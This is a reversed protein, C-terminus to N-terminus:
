SNPFEATPPTFGATYRAVGKTIRIEDLYANMALSSAIGAFYLSRTASTNVVASDNFSGELVGDKFLRWTNVSRTFAIHHWVNLTLDTYTNGSVSGGYLYIRKLYTSNYFGLQWGTIGDGGTTAIGTLVMNSGSPREAVLNIFFECTFDGSGFQFDTNNAFSISDNVGDFYMSATGFKYVGTKLVPSDNITATKPRPSSDTVVSTNNVGNLHLLLSVNNFNPDSVVPATSTLTSAFTTNSSVNLKLSKTLKLSGIAKSNNRNLASIIVLRIMGISESLAKSVATATLLISIQANSVVRAKSSSTANAIKVLSLKTNTVAKSVSKAVAISILNATSIVKASASSTTSLVKTLFTNATSSEKVISISILNIIKTVNAIVVSNTKAIGIVIGNVSIAFARATSSINKALVITSQTISNSKTNSAINRAVSPVNNVISKVTSISNLLVAKVVQGTSVGVGVAVGLIGASKIQIEAIIKSFTVSTSNILKAIQTSGSSTSNTKNLSYINKAVTTLGNSISNAINNGSVVRTLKIFPNSTAKAVAQSKIVRTIKGVGNSIGKAIATYLLVVSLYVGAINKSNTKATSTMLKSITPTAEVTGNSKVIGKLYVTGYELIDMENSCVNVIEIPNITFSCNTIVVGDFESGGIGGCGEPLNKFKNEIFSRIDKNECTELDYAFLFSIESCLDTDCKVIYDYNKALQTANKFLKNILKGRVSM